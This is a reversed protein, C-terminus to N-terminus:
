QTANVKTGPRVEDTAREFIRDGAKLNGLVEVLDGDAPGRKVDVWEAVGNTVRIVFVRDTTAKIAKVPVLFASGGRGQPWAVEAYMGPNLRNGSNTVDLEVPMTRTKSDVSLAPRAVVGTFQQGPYAAVTFPVRAGRRIGGTLSEPVAVVLRLRDMQELRFLPTAQKSEPGVFSGEHVLRETIVGDFEASIKLYNMMEEIAKVSAQAAEVSKGISAMRAKEAELAKEALIVDNGAVVGPTKAAERLRSLTSEAASSRAEVEARQSEVAVVRAKAEAIKADMEPATITALVDGKRVRSGRDVAVSTVFGSVKAFVDISRFPRLEGPLTATGQLPRSVVEVLKASVAGADEAGLTIGGHALACGLALALRTHNMNKMNKEL